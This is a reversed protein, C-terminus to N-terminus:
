ANHRSFLKWGSKRQGEEPGPDDPPPAIAGVTEVPIPTATAAPTAIDIVDTGARAPVNAPPAPPAVAMAKRSMEELLVSGPAQPPTTWTFGGVKGSPSVPLWTESVRGDAVWAKDREARSARALWERVLGLNGGDQEELEAMLVCARVTPAELVLTELSERAAAFEKADIAAQAVTLRAEPHAPKLRLLARARKLRDMASDGVRVDLYADAVDPHPEASWAAELAKSAKGYEGRGSLKRGLLTAAPALGPDLRVAEQVARLAGDPDAGDKDMADATLLVARQRRATEKDIIRRSAAQEVLAMAGLWDREACRNTLVAASAWDAGPSLKYAEDAYFRAAQADGKRQAEIHLGRLGVLKTEGDELMASFSKEAKGADGSLQASQAALLLTLPEQGLLRGADAAHREAMRADGASVAIMGRSVAQYGRQRRRNRSALSMLGPLRFLMSLLSWGVSLLLALGAIALVATIIEVEYVRNQWTLAVSGPRDALWAFGFAAALLLALFVFVRIM